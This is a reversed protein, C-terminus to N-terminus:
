WPIRMFGKKKLVDLLKGVLKDTYSVMDSMLKNDHKERLSVDSWEESDPTPYFPDHTLVM